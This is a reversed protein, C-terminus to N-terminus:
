YHITQRRYGHRASRREGEYYRSFEPDYVRLRLLLLEDNSTDEETNDDEGGNGKTEEFQFQNTQLPPEALVDIIFLRGDFNKSTQYLTPPPQASRLSITRM